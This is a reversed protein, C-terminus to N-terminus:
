DRVSVGNQAGAARLAIGVSTTHFALECRDNESVEYAQAVWGEHGTVVSATSPQAAVAGSAGLGAMVVSGVALM